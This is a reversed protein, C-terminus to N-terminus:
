GAGGVDVDNTGSAEGGGGLGDGGAAEFRDRGRIARKAFLWYGLREGCHSIVLSLSFRLCHEMEGRGQLKDDTDTGQSDAIRSARTIRAELPRGKRGYIARGIPGRESMTGASGM